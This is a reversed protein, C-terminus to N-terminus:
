GIEQERRRQRTKDRDHVRGVTPVPQEHGDGEPVQREILGGLDVLQEREQHHVGRDQRHQDDRARPNM